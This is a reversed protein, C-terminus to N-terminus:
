KIHKYKIIKNKLPIFKIDDIYYRGEQPWVRWDEFVIVLEEVKKWKFSSLDGEFNHFPIVIEQWQDSIGFVIYEIIQTQNKLEIKFADSFGKSLDGKIIISLAGFESLDVYNLKTWWGNFATETSSVDYTICLHSGELHLDKDKEYKINCYANEDEPKFDFSGSSGDLTNTTIRNDYDFLIFPANTTFVDNGNYSSVTYINYTFILALVLIFFIKKM